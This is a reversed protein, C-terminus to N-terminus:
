LRVIRAFRAHNKSYEGKGVDVVGGTQKRPQLNACAKADCKAVTSNGLDSPANPRMSAIGGLKHPIGALPRCPDVMARLMDLQAIDLAPRERVDLTPRPFYLMCHAMAAHMVKAIAIGRTFCVPCVTYSRGM